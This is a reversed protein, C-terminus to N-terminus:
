KLYLKNTYDNSMYFYLYQRVVLSCLFRCCVAARSEKTEGSKGAVAAGIVYCAFVQLFISTTTITITPIFLLLLKAGAKSMLQGLM